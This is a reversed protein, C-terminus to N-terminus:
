RYMTPLFLKIPYPTVSVVPTPTPTATSTPTITPTPTPLTTTPTPTYTPMSLDEFYQPRSTVYVGVAGNTQGDLDEVGGDQVFDVNGDLAVVRMTGGPQSVALSIEETEDSSHWVVNKLRGNVNFEYGEFRLWLDDRVRVFQAGSLESTMVDYVQYALKPQLFENLLGMYGLKVGYEVEDVGEFWLMPFIDSSMARTYVQVVYRAQEEVRDEGEHNVSAKGSESCMIPKSEGTLRIIEDRIWNAKFVLGRNYRDFGGDDDHWREGWIPFYHYNMIDFYQGGGALLLDDLFEPDFVGGEDIGVFWDYALGGLVVQVDPNGAKIAPYAFSLMEAYATGSAGPAKKPNSADGWCGGLWVYDVADSNDPENYLAWHLVNYPPASYRQVAATLFNAFTPLYQSRIPGCPTQAAWEPNGTVSLIVQLDHTAADALLQDWRSWNYVGPSTEVDRWNLYISTWHADIAAMESAGRIQSGSPILYTGFTDTPFAHATHGKANVNVLTTVALIFSLALIAILITRSQRTKM